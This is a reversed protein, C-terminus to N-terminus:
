LDNDGGMCPATGAATIVVKAGPRPRTRLGGNSGPLLALFSDRVEVRCRSPAGPIFQASVAPSGPISYARYDANVYIVAAGAKGNVACHRAASFAAHSQGVSRYFLFALSFLTAAM